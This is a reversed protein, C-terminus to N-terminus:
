WSWSYAATASTTHAYKGSTVSVTGGSTRASKRRSGAYTAITSAHAPLGVLASARPHHAGDRHRQGEDRDVRPGREDGGEGHSPRVLRARHLRKAVHRSGEEDEARQADERPGDLGATGADPDVQGM